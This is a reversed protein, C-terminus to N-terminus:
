LRYRQTISLRAEESIGQLLGTWSEDGLLTKYGTLVNLIWVSLPESPEVYSAITDVFLLLSEQSDLGSPNNSVIQCIGIYASDKEDTEVVDKIFLCCKAIYHNLHPALLEPVCQGLRGIAIAINEAVSPELDPTDLITVYRTMLEQAYTQITPGMKLCIEGSSWAANNCIAPGFYMDIKSMTVKLIKDIYPHLQDFTNIAMDGLLAFASQGVESVPDDLCQLILEVLPPQTQAILASMEDKLGQVLGDIMDLATIIFEKDPIDGTLQNFENQELMLNDNIVKVGRQYVDAAYNSFLHGFSAAVSSMCEFLPWLDKDGDQISRWKEMLPPLIINIYSPDAVAPGVVDLLTQISDYLNYFNKARYKKFCQALQTLIVEIYPILEEGVDEAFTALASCAAEQVKKNKDLCCALIGQLVPQLYLEHNVGGASQFAIWSSYRTLTWCTIQRVPADEDKLTNVLFPILEPLHPGVLDLCGISIAGFALISAERIAWDSSVIGDRLHPLSYQLVLEPYKTAFVDLAAASCKRLNWESLAAETGDEEDDDDDDYYDDDDDDAHHSPDSKSKSATQHANNTKVMNPRIDEPKDEVDEDDEVLSQLLLKDSESYVMTALITPIIAQLHSAITEDDFSTSEALGLIFECGEKAVQENDSNVCHLSFGIVGELHPILIDPRVNLISVFATCINYQTDPFEDSALTFLAQLFPELYQLLSQSKLDIFQNVCFISLSRVKASPSATLQIFKPIMHNLPREGNYDSDLETASDECIKALASMAGEASITNDSEAMAMLQPLIEPWGAITLQTVLTTIVNGSINRIMLVPDVLGKVVEAKIYAITEADPQQSATRSVNNKLMLGASSRVTADVSSENILLYVLYKNLDPMSRANKLAQSLLNTSSCLFSCSLACM